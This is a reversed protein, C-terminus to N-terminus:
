YPFNILAVKNTADVLVGCNHEAYNNKLTLTKASAGNPTIEDGAAASGGVTTSLTAAGKVQVWGFFPGGTAAISAMCVGAGVASNASDALTCLDLDATTGLVYCVVDGAVLAGTVNTTRTAGFQIYKYLNNLDRRITGLPEKASTDVDTLASKFSQAFGAM